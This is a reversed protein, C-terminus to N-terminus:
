SYSYVTCTPLLDKGYFFTDGFYPYTDASKPLFLPMPTSIQKVFKKEMKTLLAEAFKGLIFVNKTLIVFESARELLLSLIGSL